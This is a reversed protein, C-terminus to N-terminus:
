KTVTTGDIKLSSKNVLVGSARIKQVDDGSLYLYEGDFRHEHFKSQLDSEAYKFDTFWAVNVIELNESKAALFFPSKHPLEKSGQFKYFNAKKILYVFGSKPFKKRKVEVWEDQEIAKNSENAIAISQKISDDSWGVSNYEEAFISKFLYRKAVNPEFNFVDNKKWHVVGTAHPRLILEKLKWQVEIQSRDSDISIVVGIHTVIACKRIDEYDGLLIGHGRKILTIKSVDITLVASPAVSKVGLVEASFRWFRSKAV